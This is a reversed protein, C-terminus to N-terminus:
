ALLKCYTEVWRHQEHVASGCSSILLGYDQLVGPRRICDIVVFVTNKDAWFTVIDYDSEPTDRPKYTYMRLKVNWIGTNYKDIDYRLIDGPKFKFDSKNEENTMM